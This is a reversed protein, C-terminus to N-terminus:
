GKYGVRVESDPLIIKSEAGSQKLQMVMNMIQDFSLDKSCFIVQGIGYVKMQEDLVTSADKVSLLHIHDEDVGERKLLHRVRQREQEYGIVLYHKHSRTALPFSKHMVKGLLLRWLCGGIGALCGGGVTLFRSFQWDPGMLAGIILFALTGVIYGTASKKLVLPKRYARMIFNGAVMLLAFVPLVLHYYIDPFHEPNKFFLFAWLRALGYLLGYSILGDGLPLLIRKFIRSLMSLFARLWIAIRIIHIYLRYKGKSFYKEAFIEMAKYFVMVYNLSGKKTSEGKYHIIKTEPFYYNKYGGLLIRYSLDIDEGYMFFTEDLLGIKDLTEKRMMMFAGSLIEVQHIKDPDLHGMYYAAFRKSRPFFKCLGTIKYFSVEPTALGRKSEKLYRGQGDIMKVGLGGADPHSEMFDVCKKLTDTEILTDPNLLLVYKAKSLRIAQNNAKSFGVNEENAILNVWPYRERLMKVSGDVSHNDVVYVDFDKGLELGTSQKVSQLCQELFAKVNYNVIIVSLLM